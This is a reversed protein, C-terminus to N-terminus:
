LVTTRYRNARWRTWFNYMPQSDSLSDARLQLIIADGFIGKYEIANPLILERMEELDESGEMIYIVETFFDPARIM